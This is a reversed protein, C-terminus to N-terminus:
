RAACELYARLLLAAAVRDAPGRQQEARLGAEQLSRQAEITTWREDFYAVPLATHQELSRGFRRVEETEVGAQGNMHLPLGLVIRGVEYERVLAAIRELAPVAGPRGHEITELPQALIGLPDTVAVGIRRRGYDLAM